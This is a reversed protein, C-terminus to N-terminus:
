GRLIEMIVDAEEPAFDAIREVVIAVGVLEGSVIM